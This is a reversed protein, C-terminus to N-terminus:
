RQAYTTVVTSGDSARQFTVLSSATASYPLSAPVVCDLGGLSTCPPPDCADVDLQLSTGASTATGVFQVESSGLVAGTGIYIRYGIQVFGDRFEFTMEFVAFGPAASQGYVDVRVPVYRGNRVTGGTAAPPQGSPFPQSMISNPLVTAPPNASNCTFPNQPPLCVNDFTNDPRGDCDNDLPSACNRPAPFV